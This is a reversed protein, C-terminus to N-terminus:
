LAFQFLLVLLILVPRDTQVPVYPLELSTKQAAVVWVKVDLHEVRLLLGVEIVEFDHLQLRMFVGPRTAMAFELEVEHEVDNQLLLSVVELHELPVDVRVWHLTEVQALVCIFEHLRDVISHRSDVFSFVDIM